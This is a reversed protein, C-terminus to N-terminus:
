ASAGVAAAWTVTVTAAQTLPQNYGYSNRPQVALTAQNVAGFVLNNVRWANTFARGLFVYSNGGSGQIVQYINYACTDDTPANWLMDFSGIMSGAGSTVFVGNQAALGQVPLPQKGSTGVDMLKLEGLLIAASSGGAPIACSVQITAIQFGANSSLDTVVTQWGSAGQTDIPTSIQQGAANTLIVNLAPLPKNNFPSFTVALTCPSPITLAVRFLTFVSSDSAKGASSQILLSTGGDYANDDCFSSQFATQSGASIWNRYTPLIDQASMNGWHIIGAETGVTSVLNGEVFFMSARGVNFNTTLPFGGPIARESIVAGICNVLKPYSVPEGIWLRQERKEFPDAQTQKQYTWTNAYLGGSVGASQAIQLPQYTSFGEEFVQVGAYVDLARAGAYQASNSLTPDNFSWRYDLFIGDCADFFPGNQANLEGQWELNGQMTVSDYWMTKSGPIAAHLAQTLRQLFTVLQAASSAGNPLNTEFNFAWGDFGYYQAIAVLQKVFLSPNNLIPSLFSGDGDYPPTLNGLVPVGNRHAANIWCPPPIALWHHSFYSFSDVYQWFNFAFYNPNRTGQPYLDADQVYGGYIDHYVFLKPGANQAARPKLPVLNARNYVDPGSQWNQLEAITDMWGSQPIGVSPM